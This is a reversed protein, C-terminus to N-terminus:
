RSGVAPLPPSHGDSIPETGLGAQMQEVERLGDEIVSFYRRRVRRYRDGRLQEFAGDPQDQRAGKLYMVAYGPSGGGRRDVPRFQSVSCLEVYYPFLTEYRADPEHHTFGDVPTL